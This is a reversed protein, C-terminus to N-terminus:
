KAAQSYAAATTCLQLECLLDAENQLSEWNKCLRMPILRKRVSACMAPQSHMLQNHIFKNWDRDIESLECRKNNYM